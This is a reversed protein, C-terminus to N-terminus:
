ENNYVDELDKYLINVINKWDYNKSIYEHIKIKNEYINAYELKKDINKLANKISDIDPNIYELYEMKEFYDFRPKMNSSTIVYLGSSLAELIALGFNELVSPFIFVDSNKYIETLKDIDINKYYHINKNNEMMYEMTGSGVVTLDYNDNLENFLEIIMDIGKSKELRGVFLLKIKSNKVNEPVFKGSDVGNPVCFYKGYSSIYRDYYCNIIHFYSIKKFIVKKLMLKSLIKNFVNLGTYNFPLNGHESWIIIKPRKFLFYLDNNTLYIIDSNKEIYIIKKLNRIRDIELLLPSMIRILFNKAGSTKLIYNCYISNIVIKNYDDNKNDNKGELVTVDFNETKYDVYKKVTKEIGGNFHINAPIVFTIKIM